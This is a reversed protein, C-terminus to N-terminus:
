DLYALSHFESNLGLDRFGRSLLQSLAHLQLPHDEGSMQLLLGLGPSPRLQIVGNGPKPSLSFKLDLISHDQQLVGEPEQSTTEHPKKKKEKVYM